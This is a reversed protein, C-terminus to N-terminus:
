EQCAATEACRPHPAANDVTFNAAFSKIQCIYQWCPITTARETGENEVSNHFVSHTM